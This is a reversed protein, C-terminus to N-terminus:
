IQWLLPARSYRLWSRTEVRILERFSESSVSIVQFLHRLWGPSVKICAHEAVLLVLVKPLCLDQYSKRRVPLNLTSMLAFPKLPGHVGFLYRFPDRRREVWSKGDSSMSDDLYQSLLIVM